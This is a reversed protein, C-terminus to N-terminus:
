RAEVTFRYDGVTLSANSSGHVVLIYRGSPTLLSSPILLLLPSGAEPAPVRGSAVATGAAQRLEYQLDGGPTAGEVDIALTVASGDRPLVVVSAQGRSAPRVTVPALAVPGPLPQVARKLAFSQYGIIVALTAATAWPLAVSSRWVPQVPARRAFNAAKPAGLLGDRAADTMLAEIRVGEACEECNFYHEEFAHRELESMDGLVYRESALTNVAELHTM